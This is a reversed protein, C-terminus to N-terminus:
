DRRIGGHVSSCQFKDSPHMDHLLGGPYAYMRLTFEQPTLLFVRTLVDTATKSDKQSHSNDVKVLTKDYNCLQTKICLAFVQKTKQCIIVKIQKNTQVISICTLLM